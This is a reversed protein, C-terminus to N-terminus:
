DATSTEGTFTIQPFFRQPNICNDTNAWNWSNNHNKANWMGLHLHASSVNGTDGVLGILSGAVVSDGVSLPSSESQMHMFGVRIFNLNPDRSETTVVVYHGASEHGPHVYTVTGKTPSLIQTGSQRAAVDIGYHEGNRSPDRYASTINTNAGNAFVWSWGLTSYPDQAFIFLWRQNPAGTYTQIEVNAHNTTYPSAVCVTRSDSIAPVIRHTNTGVCPIILFKQADHGNFTHIQMNNGETDWANYVDLRRDPAVVPTLSYYGTAEDYAVDWQQVSVDAPANQFVNYDSTRAELRKGSNSNMIYYRGDIITPQPDYPELVWKQNNAGTYTQLIVNGASTSGTGTGSGNGTGYAALVLNTGASCYLYFAGSGASQLTFQQTTSTTPDALIVNAGATGSVAGIRRNAGESSCMAQLMYNTSDSYELLFRQEKSGDKTWQHVNTGHYDKGNDVNLYKGSGVNRLCYVIGAQLTVVEAAGSSVPFIFLLLCLCLLIALVRRIRRKNM